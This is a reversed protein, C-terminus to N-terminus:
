KREGARLLALAIACANSVNLSKIPGPMDLRALFDCKERTLRRLGKDEAGLVLAVPRRLPADTLCQQMQSDLGVRLYGSEGLQDLARALNPVTVLAVHELAGSAAKAVTGAAMPTHRGTVVVADADFAAANRLIAGANHPDTIQDLVLVIGSKREIGALQVPPLPLAELLVGQHVADPGLRLALDRAAVIRPCLGAAAIDPGLKGAAQETAYLDLLKRRRARM